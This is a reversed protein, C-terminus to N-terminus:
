LRPQQFDGAAHQGTSVGSTHAGGDRSKLESSIVRHLPPGGVTSPPLVGNGRTWGIDQLAAYDLETFAVRQSGNLSPAM